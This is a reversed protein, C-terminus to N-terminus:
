GASLGSTVTPRAGRAPRRWGKSNSRQMANDIQAGSLGSPHVGAAAARRALEAALYEKVNQAQTKPPFERQFETRAIQARKRAEILERNADKIKDQAATEAAIADIVRQNLIERVEDETMLEGDDNAPDAAPEGTLPDQVAAAGAVPAPKNVVPNRQYGPWAAQIDQRSITQDNALKQVVGTRPLGDETWHSNDSVDLQKLADRIKSIVAENTPM